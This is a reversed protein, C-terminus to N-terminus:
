NEGMTCCDYKQLFIKNSGLRNDQFAVIWSGDSLPIVSSNDQLFTSPSVSQSLLVDSNGTSINAFQKNDNLLISRVSLDVSSLRQQHYETRDFAYTTNAIILFLALLVNRHM